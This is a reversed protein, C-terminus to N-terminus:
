VGYRWSGNSRDYVIRGLLVRWMLVATDRTGAVCLGTKHWEGRRSHAGGKGLGSM